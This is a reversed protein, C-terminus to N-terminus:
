ETVPLLLLSIIILIDMQITQAAAQIHTM